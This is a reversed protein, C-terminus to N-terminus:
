PLHIHCLAILSGPICIPCLAYTYRTHVIYTLHEIHTNDNLIIQM